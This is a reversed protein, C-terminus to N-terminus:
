GQLRIAVHSRYTVIKRLYGIEVIVIGVILKTLTFGRGHRASEPARL